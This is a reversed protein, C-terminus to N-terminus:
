RGRRPARERRRAPERPAQLGRARLCLGLGRQRTRGLRRECRHGRIYVSGNVSSCGGLLKGRPCGIVRQNVGAGGSFVHQWNYRAHPLLFINGIPLRTKLNVPFQRDSPGAEILAVRVSPDASLRNAIVCGSSGAGIVIYDFRTSPEPM